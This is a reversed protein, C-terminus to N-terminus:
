ACRRQAATYQRVLHEIREAAPVVAKIPGVGQGAAWIDKWVKLTSSQGFDIGGDAPKSLHDPDLGARLISSKLFNGPIGSFCDTYIIDDAASDVVAQQYEAAARAERTAIFASGIYALDAGMLQAALIAHGTAICGSLLLPGDFWERIDQLLAFPSQTGAHGGAGAAVAILGDAGKDIAKHAFANHIVDHLVLGGYGHIAGNVAERAGLSCIVIPVQYHVCLALDEALRPNSRHVILNVAYPAAKANGPQADHAALAASIDNLWREFEGDGRANLSPFAGVIGAQCQAIVLEPGSLMFLPAGIVPLRLQALPTHAIAM